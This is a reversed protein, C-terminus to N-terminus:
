PRANSPWSSVDPTVPGLNRREVVGRWVGTGYAADDLIRMATYRVPDLKPKKTAWEFLAPAMVAIILAVRARKSVLALIMAIPWWVRTIASALFKGAHIHGLGTLRAAEKAASPVFRLKRALLVVTTISLGAALTPLGTLLSAWVGASWWSVRLPSVANGHREALGAASRGYGHRQLAFERLSARPRHVVEVAPEYRCLHGATDLRWVLDVDEGTRLSEDFGDVSRITDVRCLLVAAPVYSIRSGSRVRAPEDGMDLASHVAEYAAITSNDTFWERARVRPALLATRPHVWWRALSTVDHATCTVDADVFVVHATHVEALGSNRAAGPGGNTVRRLVKVSPADFQPVTLPSADDVVIIEATGDLQEVLRRLQDVDDTTTLYAPIVATIDSLEPGTPSAPDPLPHVAGADVFKEVLAAASEQIDLGQEIREAVSKGAKTLTFIRLPSGAIVVDGEAPRRWTSDVTFRM